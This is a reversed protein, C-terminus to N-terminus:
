FISILFASLVRDFYLVSLFMFSMSMRLEGNKDELLCPHLTLSESLFNNMEGM